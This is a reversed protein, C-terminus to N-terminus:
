IHLDIGINSADNFIGSFYMWMRSGPPFLFKSDNEPVWFHFHIPFQVFGCKCDVINSLGYCRKCYEGFETLAQRDDENEIKFCKSIFTRCPPYPKKEICLDFAVINGRTVYNNQKSWVHIPCNPLIQLADCELCYNVGMFDLCLNVLYMSNICDELLTVLPHQLFWKLHKIKAEDREIQTKLKKLESELENRQLSLNNSQEVNADHQKQRRGKSM